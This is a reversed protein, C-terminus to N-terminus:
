KKENGLEKKIRVYVRMQAIDLDREARMVVKQMKNLRTWRRVGRMRVIPGLDTQIKILSRRLIYTTFAHWIWQSSPTVESRTRFRRQGFPGDVEGRHGTASSGSATASMGGTAKTVRM